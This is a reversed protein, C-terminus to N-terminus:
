EFCAEGIQVQPHLIIIPIEFQHRPPFPTPPFPYTPHINYARADVRAPFHLVAQSHAQAGAPSENECAVATSQPFTASMEAEVVGTSM